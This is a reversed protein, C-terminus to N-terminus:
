AVGGMVEPLQKSFCSRIVSTATICHPWPTNAGQGILAVECLSSVRHAIRSSKALAAAATLRLDGVAVVVAEAVDLALRKVEKVAVGGTLRRPFSFEGQTGAPASLMNDKRRRGVFLASHNPSLGVLEDEPVTGVAGRDLKATLGVREALATAPFPNKQRLGTNKAPVVHLDIGGSGHANVTPELRGAFYPLSADVLVPVGTELGLFVTDTASPGNEDMSLLPDLGVPHRLLSHVNMMPTFLPVAAVEIMEFEAAARFM